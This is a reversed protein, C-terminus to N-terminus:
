PCTAFAASDTLAPSRVGLSNAYERVVGHLTDTVRVETEVDTAAAGYVWYRPVPEGCADIVKVLQEWNAEAFFWFLASDDSQVAIRADGRALGYDRFSVEVAFRGDHLCARTASPVCSTLIPRDLAYLEGSQTALLLEGVRTEGFTTLGPLDFPLADRVLGGASGRLAWLDGTCYDGFLYRYELPLRHGHYAYGGIVACHGGTLPLVVEPLYLEEANCIPTSAPCGTSSYCATAEMVKWGWNIAQPEDAHCFDVEDFAGQGVDAIFLSGTRRDFSFRWPNRLGLAWVLDAGPIAGAFPNSPPVAHYPPSAAHTDVDLRLIKGLLDDRNQARCGPDGAGGGDGLGFYLYGNPGFALNGGNHNAYPQPVVLLIAESAPDARDPDLLSRTFRALVSAGDGARTYAVFLWGTAAYRPHFALGLLGQEGGFLVRDRLDLFPAPLLGGDALVRIRGPQEAVFIRDDGAQALAVPSDLGTALLRLEIGELTTAPAVSPATLVLSGAFLLQSIARM